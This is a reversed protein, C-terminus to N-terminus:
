KIKNILLQLIQLLEIFEERKLVIDTPSVSREESIPIGTNEEVGKDGLYETIRSKAGAITLKEDRIFHQVACFLDLLRDTYLRKGNRMKHSRLEPFCREWYRLTHTEEDLIEAIEKQIYYIKKM